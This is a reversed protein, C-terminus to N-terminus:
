VEEQLAQSFVEEDTLTLVVTFVESFLEVVGADDHLSHTLMDVVFFSTVVSFGEVVEEHPVHPEVEVLGSTVVVGFVETTTELVQPWHSPEDLVLGTLSLM